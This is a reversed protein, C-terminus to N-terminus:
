KKLRVSKRIDWFLWAIGMITAIAGGLILATAISLYGYGLIFVFFYALPVSVILARVLSIILGPVGFGVGQMIRGIIMTIAGFPFALVYLRIYPIGISIVSPDSTFMRLFMEPFLFIIIGVIVSVLIGIKIAFWSIKELLNFKKAGFFMGALTMAGVSLGYVPLISVSELRSMIGFVAVHDVGFSIMLRNLFIASFSATLMMITSPFGVNVIDKLITKSFKFSNIHFHLYSKKHLYYM